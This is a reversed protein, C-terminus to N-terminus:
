WPDVMRKRHDRPLVPPFANMTQALIRRTDAPDIVDDVKFREAYRVATNRSKLEDTFQKHLEKRKKPDEEAELEAR